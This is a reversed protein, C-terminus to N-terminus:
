YGRIETLQSLLRINQPHLKLAKEWEEIALLRYNYSREQNYQDFYVAGLVEHIFFNTPDSRSAKELFLVAKEYDQRDYYIGALTM